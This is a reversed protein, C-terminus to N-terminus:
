RRPEQPPHTPQTEGSAKFRCTSVFRALADALTRPETNSKTSGTGQPGPYTVSAMAQLQYVHGNAILTVARFSEGAACNGAFVAQPWAVGDASTMAAAAVDEAVCKRNQLFFARAARLRSTSPPQTSRLAFHSFVYSFGTRDLATWQSMTAAGWPTDVRENLPASFPIPAVAHFMADGIENPGFENPGIENPGIENPGIENPGIENPAAGNSSITNSAAQDPAVAGAALLLAAPLLGFM